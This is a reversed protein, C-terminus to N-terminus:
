QTLHMDQEGGVHEQKEKHKSDNIKVCNAECNFFKQGPSFGHKRYCVDMTHKNRGYHTCVCKTYNRFSKGKYNSSFDNKKFCVFENHGSKGCHTCTILILLM